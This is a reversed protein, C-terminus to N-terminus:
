SVAQRYAHRGADVAEVVSKKQRAAVDKSKELLNAASERLEDVRDRILETQRLTRALLTQNRRYARIAFYSAVGVGIGVGIFLRPSYHSTM